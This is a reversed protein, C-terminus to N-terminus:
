YYNSSLSCHRPTTALYCNSPQLLKTDSTPCNMNMLSVGFLLRQNPLVPFQFNALFAENGIIVGHNVGPSSPCARPPASSLVPIEPMYSIAGGYISGLSQSLFNGPLPSTSLTNPNKHYFTFLFILYIKSSNQNRLMIYLYYELKPRSTHLIHENRM